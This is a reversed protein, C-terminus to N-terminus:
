RSRELFAIYELAHSVIMADKSMQSEDASDDDEDRTVSAAIHHFDFRPKEPKREVLFSNFDSEFYQFFFAGTHINQDYVMKFNSHELNEAM